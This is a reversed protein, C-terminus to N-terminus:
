EAFASSDDSERRTEDDAGQAVHEACASTEETLHCRIRAELGPTGFRTGHLSAIRKQASLIRAPDGEKALLSIIIQDCNTVHSM